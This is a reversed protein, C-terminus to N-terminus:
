TAISQINLILHARHIYTHPPYVEAHTHLTKKVQMYDRTLRHDAGNEGKAKIKLPRPFPWDTENSAIGDTLFFPVSHPQRQRALSWATWHRWDAGGEEWPVGCVEM